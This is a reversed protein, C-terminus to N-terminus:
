TAGAHVRLHGRNKPETGPSVLHRTLNPESESATKTAEVECIQARITWGADLTDAMEAASANPLQLLLIRSEGTLEFQRATSHATRLASLSGSPVASAVASGARALRM